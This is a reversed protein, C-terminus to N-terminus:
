HTLRVEALVGLTGFVIFGAYISTLSNGLAILWADRHCNNNFQSNDTIMVVIMLVIVM